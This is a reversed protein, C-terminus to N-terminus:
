REASFGECFRDMDHEVPPRSGRAPDAKRQVKPDLFNQIDVTVVIATGRPLHHGGVHLDDVNVRRRLPRCTSVAPLCPM